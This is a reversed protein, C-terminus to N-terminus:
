GQNTRIWSDEKIKLDLWEVVNELTFLRFLANERTFIRYELANASCIYPRIYVKTENFSFSLTFSVNGTNVSVQFTSKDVEVSKKGFHQKCYAIISDYVPDNFYPKANKKKDIDPLM